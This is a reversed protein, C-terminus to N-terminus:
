DYVTCILRNNGLIVNRREDNLRADPFRDYAAIMINETTLVYRMRSTAFYDTSLSGVVALRGARDMYLDAKQDSLRLPQTNEDDSRLQNVARVDAARILAECAEASPLASGTETSQGCGALAVFAVLVAVGRM